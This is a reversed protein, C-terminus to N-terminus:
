NDSYTVDLSGSNRADDALGVAQSDVSYGTKISQLNLDVDAPVSIGENVYLPDGFLVAAIVDADITTDSYLSYSLQINIDAIIGDGNNSHIISNKVIENGSNNTFRIGGNNNFIDLHSITIEDTVAAGDICISYDNNNRYFQSDKILVKENKTFLGADNDYIVSNTINLEGFSYIGYANIAPFAMVPDAANSLNSYKLTLTGSPSVSIIKTLDSNNNGDIIIGDIVANNEIKIGAWSDPYIIKLKGSNGETFDVYSYAINGDNLVVASNGGIRKSTAAAPQLLQTGDNAYITYKARYGDTHDMYYMTWEDNLPVISINSAGGDSFIAPTSVNSGAANYIAFQGFGDAHYAVVWNGNSLTNASTYIPTTNHYTIPGSIVGGTQSFIYFKGYSGGNSSGYTCIWNNDPLVTTSFYTISLSGDGFITPGAQLVGTSNYIVFRGRTADIDNAQYCIAFNGNNLATASIHGSSGPEFSTRGTSLTGDENYIVFYGFWDSGYGYAIVFKGGTLVAASINTTRATEFTTPGSVLNGSTDYIVFKGQYSNDLDSYCVVINGNNLEIASLYGTQNSSFAVSSIVDAMDRLESTRLPRFIPMNGVSAYLGTFNGTFKLGNEEYIESDTIVVKSKSATTFSVAKNISATPYTQTGTGTTDNGLLKSVFISDDNDPIYDLSRLTTSDTAGVANEPILGSIIYTASSISSRYISEKISIAKLATTTGIGTISIPTSYETSESTPDTGDTTYYIATGETSCSLEVNIDAYYTGESLNFSPPAVTVTIISDESSNGGGCSIFASLSLFLVTSKAISKM